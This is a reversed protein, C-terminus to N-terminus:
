SILSLRASFINIFDLSFLASIIVVSFSITLSKPALSPEKLALSNIFDFTTSKSM